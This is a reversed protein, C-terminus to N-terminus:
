DLWVSFRGRAVAVILAAGGAPVAAMSPVGIPKNDDRRRSAWPM